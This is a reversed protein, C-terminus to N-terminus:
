PYHLAQECSFVLFFVWLLPRTPNLLHQPTKQTTRLYRNMLFYLFFVWLLSRTPTYLHHPTKQTTRLYRNVLFYVSILVSSPDRQLASTTFDDPPAASVSRRHTYIYLRSCFNVSREGGYFLHLGGWLYRGRTVTLLSVPLVCLCVVLVCLVVCCVVLVVSCVAVRLVVGGCKVVISPPAAVTRVHSQSCFRGRRFVRSYGSTTHDTTRRKAKILCEKVELSKHM